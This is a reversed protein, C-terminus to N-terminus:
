PSGGHWGPWLEDFRALFAREAEHPPLCLVEAGCPEGYKKRYRKVLGGDGSPDRRVVAEDTLMATDIRKVLARIEPRAGTDLGFRARVVDALQHEARRYWRMGRSYKLPRIVDGLYAEQADHLLGERGAYRTAHARELPTNWMLVGDFRASDHVVRAAIISVQVSHEAVSYFSRESPLDIATHGAYRCENALGRAVDRVDIEEPTADLPYFLRGTATRMVHGYRRGRRRAMWRGVWELVSM